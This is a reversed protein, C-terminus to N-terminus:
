AHEIITFDPNFYVTDAGAAWGVVQVFDGTTDPSVGEPVNFGGVEAEPVYLTEGVAYTPFNTQHQLFGQLLITVASGASAQAVAVMGMCMIEASILGTGSVVSVAKWVRSDAAKLYVVEGVDLAEGATFSATIGSYVTDAPTSDIFIDKSFVAQQSFTVVGTSAIAIADTDSASGINGGDGVILHAMTVTGTTTDSADNKLFADDVNFTTTSLTLNTGGTYTTNTDATGSLVGASATINTGALKDALTDLGVRKITGGDSYLLEDAADLGSTIETQGSIFTDEVKAASITGDAPTGISLTDGLMVGFFDAGSEPPSTFTITSGSLTYASVPEQLIGGVSILLTTEKPPTVAVTGVALSFAVNSGNFTGSIDDLKRYDGSLPATGVYGM